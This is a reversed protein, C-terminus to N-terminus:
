GSIAKPQPLKRVLFAVEADSCGMEMRAIQVMRTRIQDPSVPDVLGLKALGEKRRDPNPLQRWLAWMGMVAALKRVNLPFSDRRKRNAPALFTALDEATAGAFVYGAGFSEFLKEVRARLSM